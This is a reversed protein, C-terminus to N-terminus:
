DYIRQTYILGECLTPNLLYECMEEDTLTHYWEENDVLEEINDLQITIDDTNNNVQYDLGIADVLETLDSDITFLVKM